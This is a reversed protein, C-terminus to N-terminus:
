AATAPPETRRHYLHAAAAAGIVPALLNVIPMLFLATVAAGLLARQGRTAALWAAGAVPDAHRAAVMEGLDHGFALGNVAVFLLATGVGTVLLLLYFPLAVLNYLIIRLTSRVGLLAGRAWGLPQAGAAAAPYHRTEVIGVIRDMYAAIVGLAVAPFLLWIGLVTLIIAGLGSAPLGLPCTDDILWGCPDAGNLAWALVLGLGAFVLLTVILSRILVGLIRPDGLDGIALSLARLM